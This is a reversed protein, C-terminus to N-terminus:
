LAPPSPLTLPAKETVKRFPTKKVEPSRPDVESVWQQVTRETYSGDCYGHKKILPHAAVDKIMYDPHMEWLGAALAQSREKAIQHQRLAPEKELRDEARDEPFLFQPRQRKSLAWDRLHTRSFVIENSDSPLMVTAVLSQEPKLVGLAVAERMALIMSRCCHKNQPTTTEVECWLLAVEHMTFLDRMDYSRFDFTM